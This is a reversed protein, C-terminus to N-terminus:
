SVGSLVGFPGKRMEPLPKITSCRLACLARCNGESLSHSQLRSRLWLRGGLRGRGMGWAEHM